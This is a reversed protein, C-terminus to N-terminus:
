SLSSSRMSLGTRQAPEARATINLTRPPIQPRLGPPHPSGFAGGPHHRRPETRSGGRPPRFAGARLQEGRAQIWSFSHLFAAGRLFHNQAEPSASTPFEFSGVNEFQAQTPSASLVLLIAVLFVAPARIM